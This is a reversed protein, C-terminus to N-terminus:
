DRNVEEAVEIMEVAKKISENMHRVIVMSTGLEEETPEPTDVLLKKVERLAARLRENEIM